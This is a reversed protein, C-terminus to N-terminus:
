DILQPVGAADLVRRGNSSPSRIFPFEAAAVRGDGTLPRLFDRRAPASDAPRGRPPSQAVRAFEASKAEGNLRATEILTYMIAARRGGEDSGAFLYNKASSPSRASRRGAEASLRGERKRFTSGSARSASTMARMASWGILRTSWSSGQFQAGLGSWALAAQDADRPRQM